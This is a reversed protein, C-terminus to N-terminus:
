LHWRVGNTLHLSVRHRPPRILHMMHGVGDMCCLSVLSKEQSSFPHWGIYKDPHSPDTCMPIYFRVPFLLGLFLNSLASRLFSPPEEHSGWLSSSALWQAPSSEVSRDCPGLVWPYLVRLEELFKLEAWGKGNVSGVLGWISMMQNIPRFMGGMWRGTWNHPHVEARGKM